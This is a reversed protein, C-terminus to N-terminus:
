EEVLVFGDFDGAIRTFMEGEANQYTLCPQWDGIKVKGVGDGKYYTGPRIHKLKHGASFQKM